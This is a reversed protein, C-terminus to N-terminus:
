TKLKRREVPLVVVQDGRSVGIAVTTGEQGRIRAVAGDVGIDKTPAGDVSVIKDGAIIGAAEAGGGPVVM